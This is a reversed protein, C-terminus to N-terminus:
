NIESGQPISVKGPQPGYPFPLRAKGHRCADKFCQDLQKGKEGSSAAFLADGHSSTMRRPVHLALHWFHMQFVAKLPKVFQDVHELGHRALSLVHCGLAQGLEADLEKSRAGLDVFAQLQVLLVNHDDAQQLKQPLQGVRLHTLDKEARHDVGEVHLVVRVSGHLRQHVLHLGKVAVSGALKRQGLLHQFAPKPPHHCAKVHFFLIQEQQACSDVLLQPDVVLWDGHIRDHHQRRSSCYAVPHPGGQEVAFQHGKHVGLFPLLCRPGKLHVVETM